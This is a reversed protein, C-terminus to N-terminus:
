LSDLRPGRARGVPVHQINGDPRFAAIMQEELQQVTRDPCDDSLPLLWVGAWDITAAHHHAFRDQIGRPDARCVKGIYRVCDDMDVVVYIGVAMAASESLLIAEGDHDIAYFDYFNAEHAMTGFSKMWRHADDDGFPPAAIAHQPLSPVTM